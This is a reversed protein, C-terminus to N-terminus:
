VPSFRIPGFRTTPTQPNWVGNPSRPHLNMQVSRLQPIVTAPAGGAMERLLPSMAAFAPADRVDRLLENVYTIGSTVVGGELYLLDGLPSQTPGEADAGQQGVTFGPLCDDRMQVQYSLRRAALRNNGEATHGRYSEFGDTAQVMPRNTLSLPARPNWMAERVQAELFDLMAEVGADTAPTDFIITLGKDPNDEDIPVQCFSGYAMEVILNVDRRHQGGVTGRNLQEGRDHDTYVLVVPMGEDPEVNEIPDLRSDFVRNGAFTPFPEVDNNTIAAVTAARLLFRNVSM